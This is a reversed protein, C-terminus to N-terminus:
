LVCELSVSCLKQADVSRVVCATGFMKKRHLGALVFACRALRWRVLWPPEIIGKWFRPFCPDPQPYAAYFHLVALFGELSMTRHMKLNQRLLIWVESVVKASYGYHSLFRALDLSHKYQKVKFIIRQNTDFQQKSAARVCFPDLGRRLVDDPDFPM